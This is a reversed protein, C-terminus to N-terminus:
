GGSSSADNASAAIVAFADLAYLSEANEGRLEKQAVVAHHIEDKFWKDQRKGGTSLTFRTDNDCLDMTDGM